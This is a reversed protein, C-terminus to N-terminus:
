SCRRIEAKRSQETIKFSVTEQVKEEQAMVMGVSLGVIATLVFAFGMITSFMKRIM